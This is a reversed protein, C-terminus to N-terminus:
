IRGDAQLYDQHCRLAEMVVPFYARVGEAADAESHHLRIKQEEDDWENSGEHEPWGSDGNTARGRVLGAMVPDDEPVTASLHKPVEHMHESDGWYLLHMHVRGSGHYKQTGKKRKGDQYELRAFFNLM